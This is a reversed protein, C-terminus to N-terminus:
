GNDDGEEYSEYDYTLNNFNFKILFERLPSHRRSKITTVNRYDSNIDGGVGLVLDAHSIIGAKAELLDDAKPFPEDKNLQHATIMILNKDQAIKKLNSTINELEHRRQDAKKIGSVVGLYDLFVVDPKIKEIELELEPITLESYCCAYFDPFEDVSLLRKKLMTESFDKISIYLTKMNNLCADRVFSLMISTKGRGTFACIVALEEKTLGYHFLYFLDPIENMEMESFLKSKTDGQISNMTSIGSIQELKSDVTDESQLISGIRHLRNNAYVTRVARHGVLNSVGEPMDRFFLYEDSSLTDKVISLFDDKTLTDKEKKIEDYLVDFPYEFYVTDLLPYLQQRKNSDFLFAFLNLYINEV